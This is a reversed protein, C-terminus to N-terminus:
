KDTQSFKFFLYVVTGILIFFLGSQLVLGAELETIFKNILSSTITQSSNSCSTRTIMTNLMIASFIINIITLILGTGIFFSSFTRSHESFIIESACVLGFFFIQICVFILSLLIMTDFNVAKTEQGTTCSFNLGSNYFIDNKLYVIFMVIFLSIISVFVIIKNM